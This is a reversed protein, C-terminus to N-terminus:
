EQRLARAPDIRAARRAPFYCAALAALLLLLAAASAIKPNTASVGYLLGHLLRAAALALVAGAALGALTLSLGRWVVMGLVRRPEAGLVMRVGIEQTRGAVLFSLLGYLGLSAVLLGLAAFVGTLAANFRPRARLRAIRAGLTSIKVPLTPDLTAIEGRVMREVEGVELPSRVLFFAHRDPGGNWPGLDPAYKRVVYYEPEAPDIRGSGTVYKVDGAVGVVEYWPGSPPFPQLQSGIANGAPFLRVALKKGLVIADGQPERDASVFGRGALIPIGLIRFYGPTVARLGVM